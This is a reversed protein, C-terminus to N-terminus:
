QPLLSFTSNPLVELVFNSQMLNADPGTGNQFKYDRVSLYVVDTSVGLQEGLDSLKMSFEKTVDNPAYSTKTGLSQNRLTVGSGIGVTGNKWFQLKIDDVATATITTSGVNKFRFKLDANLDYFGSSNANSYITAVKNAISWYKLGNSQESNFNPPTSDNDFGVLENYFTNNITVGTAVPYAFQSTKVSVLFGNRSNIDLRNITNQSQQLQAELSNILADKDITPVLEAFEKDDLLFRNYTPLTITSERCLISVTLSGSENTIIQGLSNRVM